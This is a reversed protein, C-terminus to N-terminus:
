IAEEEGLSLVSDLKKLARPHSSHPPSSRSLTGAISTTHYSAGSDVVWNSPPPTMVM